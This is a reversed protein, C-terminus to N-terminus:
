VGSPASAVPTVVPAPEAGTLLYCVGSGCTVAHAGAVYITLPVAHDARCVLQYEVIPGALGLGAAREPALDHAAALDALRRPLKHRVADDCSGSWPSSYGAGTVTVTRGHFGAADADAILARVGLVHGTVTWRRLLAADPDAQTPRAPPSDPPLWGCGALAILLLERCRRTPAV